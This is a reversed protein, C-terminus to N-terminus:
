QCASNGKNKPILCMPSKYAAFGSRTMSFFLVLILLVALVLTGNNVKFM